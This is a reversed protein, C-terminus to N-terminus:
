LFLADYASLLKLRSIARDLDDCRAELPNDMTNGPLFPASLLCSNTPEMQAFDKLSTAIPHRSNVSILECKQVNLHLEMETGKTSFMEADGAVTDAHRGLTVDDM